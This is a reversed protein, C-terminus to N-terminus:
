RAPASFLRSCFYKLPFRRGNLLYYKYGMVANRRRLCAIYPVSDLPMTYALEPKRRWCSMMVFEERYVFNGNQKCKELCRYYADCWRRSPEIAGGFFQANIRSLDANALIVKDQPLARCVGLNPWEIDEFLRFTMRPGEIMPADPNYRFQGIDCWFLMESGFPNELLAQRLFHHKEHWILSRAVFVERTIPAEGYLTCCPLRKLDDLYRYTYFEEPRTVRWVAPKDGRAEKLMDLSQEDCFVVLPWRVHPLFNRIWGPYPNELEPHEPKGGLEFYATVLTIPHREATEMGSDAARMMAGARFHAKQLLVAM